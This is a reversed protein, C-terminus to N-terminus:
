HGRRLLRKVLHGAAIGTRKDFVIGVRPPLRQGLDLVLRNVPFAIGFAVPLHVGLGLRSCRGDRSCSARCRLRDLGPHLGTPPLAPSPSGHRPAAM